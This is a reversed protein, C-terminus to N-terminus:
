YCATEGEEAKELVEDFIKIWDEKTGAGSKAEIAKGTRDVFVTYPFATAAKKVYKNGFSESPFMMTYELNDKKVIAKAEKDLAARKTEDTNYIPVGRSGACLGIIQLGKDGYEKSLESLEPMENICPHCDTAWINIMTVTADNFVDASIEKGDFDTGGFYKYLENEIVQVESRLNSDARYGTFVIVTVSIVAVLALILIKKVIGMNRYAGEQLKKQKIDGFM